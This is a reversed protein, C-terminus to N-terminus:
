MKIYKIGALDLYKKIFQTSESESYYEERYYIKSIGVRIILMACSSCPFLTTFLTYNSLPLKIYSKSLLRVISEVEAHIIRCKYNKDSSHIEERPCKDKCKNLFGPAVNVGIEEALYGSYKDNELLMAGVSRKICETKEKAKDELYDLINKELSM